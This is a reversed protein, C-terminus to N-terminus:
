GTRMLATARYARGRDIEKVRGVCRARGAEICSREMEERRLRAASENGEIVAVGVDPEGALDKDKIIIMWLKM